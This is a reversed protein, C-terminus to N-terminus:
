YTTRQLCTTPFLYMVLRNSSYKSPGRVSLTGAPFIDSGGLALNTVFKDLIFLILLANLQLKAIM